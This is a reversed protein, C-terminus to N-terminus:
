RRPFEGFAIQRIRYSDMGVREGALLVVVLSGDGGSQEPSRHMLVLAIPQDQRPQLVQSIWKMATINAQRLALDSTPTLYRKLPEAIPSEPLVTILDSALSDPMVRYCLSKAWDVQRSRGVL